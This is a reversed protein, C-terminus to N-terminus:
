APQGHSKVNDLPLTPEMLCGERVGVMFIREHAAFFLLHDIVEGDMPILDIMYGGAEEATAIALPVTLCAPEPAPVTPAAMAAALILALM